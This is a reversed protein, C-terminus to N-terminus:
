CFRVPVDCDDNCCKEQKTISYVLPDIIKNGDDENDADSAFVEAVKVNPDGSLMTESIDPQYLLENM